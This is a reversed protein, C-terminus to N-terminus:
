DETYVKPYKKKFLSLLLFHDNYKFVLMIVIWIKILIIITESQLYFIYYVLLMRLKELLM